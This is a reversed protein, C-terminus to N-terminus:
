EACSGTNTPTYTWPRGDLDNVTLLKADWCMCDTLKHKSQESTRKSGSRKQLYMNENRADRRKSTTNSNISHIKNQPLLIDRGVEHRRSDYFGFKNERWTSPGVLFYCSRVILCWTWASTWFTRGASWRKDTFRMRANTDTRWGMKRWTDAHSGSYPNKSCYSLQLRKRFETSIIWIQNFDSM